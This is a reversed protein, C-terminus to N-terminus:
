KQNSKYKRYENWLKEKLEPDSEKMAAERIQRAVVDDDRGSPIDSPPEGAGRGEFDGKRGSGSGAQPSNGSSNGSGSADSSEPAEEAQGSGEQSYAEDVKEEFRADPPIENFVAGEFSDETDDNELTRNRDHMGQQERVIMGDYQEFSAELEAEMQELDPGGRGGATNGEFLGGSAEGYASNGSDSRSGSQSAPSSDHPTSGNRGSSAGQQAGSGYGTNQGNQQGPSRSSRTQQQGNSTQGRTDNSSQSSSPPSSSPVNGRSSPMPISQGAVQVSVQVDGAGSSPQGSRSSPFSSSPSSSRSSSSNPLSSSSGSSQSPLQASPM